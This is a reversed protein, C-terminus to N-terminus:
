AEDLDAAWVVRHSILCLSHNHTYRFNRKRKKRNWGNWTSPRTIYFMKVLSDTNAKTIDDAPHCFHSVGNLWKLSKM